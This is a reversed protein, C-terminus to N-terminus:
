RFFELDSAFRFTLVMSFTLALQQRSGRSAAPGSAAARDAARAQGPDFPRTAPLPLRAAARATRELARNRCRCDGRASRPPEHRAPQARDARSRRAQRASAHHRASPCSGPPWTRRAARGPRAARLLRLANYQQPTLGYQDFLSEELAHLRDFTRWLALFTEQEPSDFRHKSPVTRLKTIAM